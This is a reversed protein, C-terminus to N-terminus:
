PQNANSALNRVSVVKLRDGQMGIAIAYNLYDSTMYLVNEPTLETEFSLHIFSGKLYNEAPMLSQNWSFAPNLLILERPLEIDIFFQNKKLRNKKEVLSVRSQNMIADRFREDSMKISALYADRSRLASSDLTASLNRYNVAHRENYDVNDTANYVNDIWCIKDDTMAIARVKAIDGFRKEAGHLSVKEVKVSSRVPVRNITPLKLIDYDEAYRDTYHICLFVRLNVLDIDAQNDITVDIAMDDSSLGLMKSRKEFSLNIYNKEPLLQNFSNPLYEECLRMDLLLSEYTGQNSRRFFHNYIEKACRDLDGQRDYYMAKLLNPSFFGSGTMTSRYLNLLYSGELSRNLYTRTRYSDLLDTLREAQRPYEMSSQDYYTLAKAHDGRYEQIMGELLLAPASQDPYRDLYRDIGEQAANLYAEQRSMRASDDEPSFLRLGEDPNWQSSQILGMSKLLLAERNDPYNALVKECDEVVLDPRDNYLDIYAKDKDICLRDWETMYKIYVPTFTELYDLYEMRVEEIQQKLEGKLRQEEQFQDFIVGATKKFIWLGGVGEDMMLLGMDGADIRGAVDSGLKQVLSTWFNLEDHQKQLLYLRQLVPMLKAKSELVEAPVGSYDQRAMYGLFDDFGQLQTQAVELSNIVRITNELDYSSAPEEEQPQLATYAEEFEEIPQYPEPEAQKNRFQLVLLLAAGLAFLSLGIWLRRKGKKTEEEM